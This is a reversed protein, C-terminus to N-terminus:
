YLRFSMKVIRFVRGRQLFCYAFGMDGMETECRGGMNGMLTKVNEMGIKTSPIAEEQRRIGNCVEIGVEGDEYVTAIRVAEEWDAYKLLNTGLNDVIRLIDGMSIWIVERRWELCVEVMFGQGGLFMVLESVCDMFVSQFLVPEKRRKERRGDGVQSCEFLRDSLEKMQVAKTMIKDLYYDRKAEDTCM